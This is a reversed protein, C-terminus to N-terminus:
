KLLSELLLRTKEFSPRPAESDIIKGEPDILIFRPISNVAFANMFDSDFSKDAFLQIGTLEKNEVVKKWTPKAREKDVSISVFEINKDHFMEELEKLYPIQRLCPMCWTAWVDIYVYKGKLDSLSVLNGDIDEYTFDPSQTGKDLLKSATIEKYKKESAEIFPEYTTLKKILDLYDKARPEKTSIKSYFGNLLNVALEQFRVKRFVNLMGEVDKAEGIRSSWISNVLYHYYPQSLYETKNHIDVSEIPRYFKDSPKVEDGIYFKYSTEYNKINLLRKYELNKKETKNFFGETNYTALLRSLTDNLSQINELFENEDAAYFSKLDKTTEADVIAKEALYNNREAGKGSFELTHEFNKADFNM